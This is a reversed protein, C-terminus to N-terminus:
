IGCHQVDFHHTDHCSEWDCQDKNMARRAVTLTQITKVFQSFLNVTMAHAVFAVHLFDHDTGMSRPVFHKSQQQGRKIKGDSSCASRIKEFLSSM